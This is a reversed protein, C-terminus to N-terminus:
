GWTIVQLAMDGGHLGLTLADILFLYCKQSLLVPEVLRHPLLVQGPGGAKGLTIQPVGKFVVQRYPLHDTVPHEEGNQDRNNSDDEGPQYCERDANVGGGM